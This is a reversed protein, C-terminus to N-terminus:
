DEEEENLFIVNLNMGDKIIAEIEDDSHDIDMGLGVEYKLLSDLFEKDTISWLEGDLATSIHRGISYSPHSKYLRNLTQTIQLYYNPKKM